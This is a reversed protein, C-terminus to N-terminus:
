MKSDFEEYAPAAEYIPLQDVDDEDTLLKGEGFDERYASGRRGGRAFRFWLCSITRGALLGLFSVLLGVTIGAFIPILVAILGRAFSHVYRHRNTQGTHYGHPHGPRHNSGHDISDHGFHTRIHTSLRGDWCPRSPAFKLRANAATELLRDKMDCFASPLFGCNNSQSPHGHSSPAPTSVPKVVEVTVIFLEGTAMKLVDISIEPLGAVLQWELAMIQFKLKVILDGDMSLPNKSEIKIGSSTVELPTVVGSPSIQNAYLPRGQIYADKLFQGPYIAEHNLELRQGNSSIDFNLNLQYNSHLWIQDRDELDEETDVDNSPFACSSCPIQISRSKPNVLPNFLDIDDAGPPLLLARVAVVCIATLGVSRGLM